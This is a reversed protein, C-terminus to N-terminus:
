MKDVLSLSIGVGIIDELKITNKNEAVCYLFETLSSEPGPLGNNPTNLFRQLKEKDFKGDSGIAHEVLILIACLEMYNILVVCGSCVKFSEKIKLNLQQFTPSSRKGFAKTFKQGAKFINIKKLLTNRIKQIDITHNLNVLTGNKNYKVYPKKDDSKMHRFFNIYQCPLELRAAEELEQCAYVNIEIPIGLNHELLKRLIESLMMCRKFDKNFPPAFMRPTMNDAILKKMKPNTVDYIGAMREKLDIPEVTLLMDYLIEGSTYSIFPESDIYEGLKKYGDSEDILKTGIIGNISIKVNKDKNKPIIIYCDQKPHGHM